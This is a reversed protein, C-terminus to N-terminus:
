RWNQAILVIALAVLALANLVILCGTMGLLAFAKRDARQEAVLAVATTADLRKLTEARAEMMDDRVHRAERDVHAQRTLREAADAELRTKTDAQHKLAEQALLSIANNVTKKYETIEGGLQTQYDRWSQHLEGLVKLVRKYDDDDSVV